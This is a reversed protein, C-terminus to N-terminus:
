SQEETTDDIIVEIQGHWYCGQSNSRGQHKHRPNPNASYRVTFPVNAAECAAAVHENIFALAEASSGDLRFEAVERRRVM